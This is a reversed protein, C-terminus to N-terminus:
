LTLLWGIQRHLCRSLVLQHDVELGSLREAEFHRRRQERAGVLHDFSLPALEDRQEAARRRPRERRTRLLAVAHPADPHEHGYSRVIRFKLCTERREQLRQLLQIPGDAAIHAISMRHAVALASAMRLCAASNAASAGSTM